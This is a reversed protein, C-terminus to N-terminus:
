SSELAQRIAAPRNTILADVGLDRLRGAEEPDDVTWVHIRYGRQRAWAVYDATVLQRYPHDAQGSFLLYSYQQIGKYRLQALLSEAPMFRRARRMVIPSFSSVTVYEALRYKQILAAIAAELGHDTWRYDKIEVNYLLRSGFTAFVAELTPVAEGQGADLRGLAAATYGQVPGSGDTTRDLTHDHIVVPVRDAAPQVDFEIGHAGEDLALQFAALTNEPAAHSAGRHGIILPQPGNLWHNM